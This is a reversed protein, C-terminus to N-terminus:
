WYISGIKDTEILDSLFNLNGVTAIIVGTTLATIAGFKSQLHIYLYQSYGLM